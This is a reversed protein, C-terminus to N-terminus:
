ARFAALGFGLIGFVLRAKFKLITSGAARVRLDLGGPGHGAEGRQQLVERGSEPHRAHPYTSTHVRVPGYAYMHM